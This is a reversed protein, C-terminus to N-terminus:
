QHGVALFGYGLKAPVGTDVLHQLAAAAKEHDLSALDPPLPLTSTSPPPLSPLLALLKRARALLSEPDGGAEDGSSQDDCHSYVSSRSRSIHSTSTCTSSGVCGILAITTVVKSAAGVAAHSPKPAAPATFLSRSRSLSLTFVPSRKRTAIATCSSPTTRVTRRWM